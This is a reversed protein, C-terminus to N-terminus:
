LGERRPPGALGGTVLLMDGDFGCSARAAAPNVEAMRTLWAVKACERDGASLASAHTLCNSM